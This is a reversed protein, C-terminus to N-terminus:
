EENDKKDFVIPEIGVQKCMDNALAFFALKLPLFYKFLGGKREDLKPYLNTLASRLIEAETKGDGQGVTPCGNYLIVQRSTTDLTLTIDGYLVKQQM